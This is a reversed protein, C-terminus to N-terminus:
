KGVDKFDCRSIVFESLSQGRRKAESHLKVKLAFPMDVLVVVMREQADKRPRSV